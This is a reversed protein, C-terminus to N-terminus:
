KNTVNGFRSLKERFAEPTTPTFAPAKVEARSVVYDGFASYAKGEKFAIFVLHVKENLPLKGFDLTQDRVYGGIISSRENLIAYSQIIDYGNPRTVFFPSVDPMDIFKDCNVWGLRDIRFRYSQRLVAATDGAEAAYEFDYEEVLGDSISTSNNTAITNRPLNGEKMKEPIPRITGLFRKAQTSGDRTKAPIWNIKGTLSLPLTDSLDGPKGYFLEMEPDLRSAPMDIDIFKGKQVFVPQDKLTAQLHLMGGTQLIEGNSTTTLGEAIINEMAYCERVTLIILAGKGVDQTLAFAGSPIHLVTGGECRVITDRLPSITFVQPKKQLKEFFVGTGSITPNTEALSFDMTYTQTRQDRKEPAVATGVPSNPTDSDAPLPDPSVDNKGNLQNGASVVQQDPVGANNSNNHLLVFYAIVAILLFGPVIFFLKKLFSASGSAAPHLQRQMDKWHADIHSLESQAEEDKKRFFDDMHNFEAPM